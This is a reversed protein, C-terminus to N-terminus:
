ARVTERAPLFTRVALQDRLESVVEIEFDHQAHFFHPRTQLIIQELVAHYARDRAPPVLHREETRAKALDYKRSTIGILYFPEDCQRLSKIFNNSPAGGAGGVLIRKM